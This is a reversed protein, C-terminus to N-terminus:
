HQPNGHGCAEARQARLGSIEGLSKKGFAGFINRIFILIM